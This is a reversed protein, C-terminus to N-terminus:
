GGEMGSKVIHALQPPLFRLSNRALVEDKLFKDLCQRILSKPSPRFILIENSQRTQQRQLVNVLSGGFIFVEGHQTLTSSHWLRPGAFTIDVQIWVLLDVDLLWGDNLVDGETTFGGYLFIHTQSVATLSHWSRGIPKHNGNQSLDGSWSESICDFCHLDSMRSNSTRGGFVFVRHKIQASAHAARPSLINGKPFLPLWSKIRIDFAFTDNNWGNSMNNSDQIFSGLYNQMTNPEPYPGYGGFFYLKEGYIWGVLKDRPTPSWSLVDTEIRKWTLDILNLAFLHNTRSSSSCGAFIFLTDNHLHSLAGSVGFIRNIEDDFVTTKLNWKELDTDYLWLDKASSYSTESTERSDNGIHDHYGGWVGALNKYTFSIHGVRPEPISM